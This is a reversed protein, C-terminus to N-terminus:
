NTNLMKYNADYISFSLSHIDKMNQNNIKIAKEIYDYDIGPKSFPLNDKLGSAVSAIDDRIGIIKESYSKIDKNDSASILDNLGNERKKLYDIINLAFSLKSDPNTQDDFANGILNGAQALLVLEYQLENTLLLEADYSKKTYIFVSRTDADWEVEADFYEAIVRLPVMTKGNTISPPVESYVSKGDIYIKIPNAAYVVGGLLLVVLFVSLGIVLRRKM